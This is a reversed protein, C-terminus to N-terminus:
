FSKKAKKQLPIGPRIREQAEDQPASLKPNAGIPWLLYNAPHHVSCTCGSCCSTCDLCTRNSFAGEKPSALGHNAAHWLRFMGFGLNLCATNQLELLKGVEQSFRQYWHMRVTVKWYWREWAKMIHQYAGAQVRPTGMKIENNKSIRIEQDPPREDGLRRIKRGGRLRRARSACCLWGRGDRGQQFHGCLSYHIYLGQGGGAPAM